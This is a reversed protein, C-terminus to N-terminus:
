NRTERFYGCRPAIQKLEHKNHNINYETQEILAKAIKNNVSLQVYEEFIKSETFNKYKEYRETIESKNLYSLKNDPKNYYKYYKEDIDLKKKENLVIDVPVNHL